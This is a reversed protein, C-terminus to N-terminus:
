ITKICEALKLWVIEMKSPNEEAIFVSVQCWSLFKLQTYFKPTTFTEKKKKERKKTISANSSLAECKSPLPELGNQESKKSSPGQNKGLSALSVM